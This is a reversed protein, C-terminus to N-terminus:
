EYIVLMSPTGNRTSLIIKSYENGTLKYARVDDAKGSRVIGKQTVVVIRYKSLPHAEFDVYRAGEMSDSVNRQTILAVDGDKDYVNASIIRYSSTFASSGFTDNVKLGNVSSRDNIMKINLIRDNHDTVLKVIDGAEVTCKETEDAFSMCSKLVSEDRCEMSQTGNIGIVQIIDTIDGNESIGKTIKKVVYMPATSDLTNKGTRQLIFDVGLGSSNYSYAELAYSSGDRYDALTGVSFDIDEAASTDEPVRIVKVNDACVFVGSFGNMAARYVYRGNAALVFHNLGDDEGEDAFNRESPFDLSRLSGDNGRTYSVMGSLSIASLASYIQEEGKYLVGDIYLKDGTELVRMMDNVDYLKIKFCKSLGETRYDSGVIYGVGQNYDEFVENSIAALKGKFDKLFSRYSGLVINEVDDKIAKDYKYMEGDIYLNYEETELSETRGYIIGTSHYIENAFLVGNKEIGIVSVLSKKKIDKIKAKDGNISFIKTNGNEEGSAIHVSKKGTMYINFGGQTEVIDEVVYNVYDYIMVVNIKGSNDNEIFEIWGNIPIFRMSQKSEPVTNNYIISVDSALELEDEKGKENEYTYKGNSYSIIKEADLVTKSNIKEPTVMVATREGFSEKYYVRVYHGLYENYSEDYFKYQIGDICIENLVPKAASLLNVDSNATVVGRTQKINLLKELVYENKSIAFEGTGGYVPEIAPLWMTKFVLDATENWTLSENGNKGCVLDNKLAVKKYGEPYGGAKQALGDYDAISLLGLIAENYTLPDDARFSGTENKRMAGMVYLKNINDENENYIGLLKTLLMAYETRTIINEGAYQDDTLLELSKFFSVSDSQVNSALAIEAPMFTVLILLSALLTCIMKKM